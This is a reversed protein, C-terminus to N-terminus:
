GAVILDKLSDYTGSKIGPVNMLDETSDFRGNAERYDIIKQAKSAGIGPLTMLEEKAATNINVLSFGGDAVTQQLDDASVDSISPVYIREGDIVTAALNLADACADATFGGAAEIATIQRDGTSLMYVGPNEVAGCVYVFIEQRKLESEVANDIETSNQLVDDKASSDSQAYLDQQVSDFVGNTTLATGFGSDAPSEDLLGCASLLGIGVALIMVLRFKGSM